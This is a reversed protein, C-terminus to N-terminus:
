VISGAMNAISEMRAQQRKTTDETKYSALQRALDDMFNTRATEVSTRQKNLQGMLDGRARDYLSSQLLGRSAFDGLQSQYSKGSATTQDTLNWDGPTFDAAGATGMPKKWGLTQLSTDYDVDYKKKQTETDAEYMKLASDLAALTANYATDGTLYDAESVAPAPASYGVAGGTYGYDVPADAQQAQITAVTGPGLGRPLSSKPAALDRQPVTSPGKAKATARKPAIPGLTAM